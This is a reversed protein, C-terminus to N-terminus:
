FISIIPRSTVFGLVFGRGHYLSTFKCSGKGRESERGKRKLCVAKRSVFFFFSFGCFARSNILGWYFGGRLARFGWERVGEMRERDRKM